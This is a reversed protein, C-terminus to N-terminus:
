NSIEHSPFNCSGRYCFSWIIQGFGGGMRTMQIDIKEIPMGLRSAVSKEMSELKFQDLWFLKTM